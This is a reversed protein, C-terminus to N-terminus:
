NWNDEISLLKQVTRLRLHVKTRATELLHSSPSIVHSLSLYMNRQISAYMSASSAYSTVSTHPIM